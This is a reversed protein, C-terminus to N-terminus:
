RRYKKIMLRRILAAGMPGVTACLVGSAVLRSEYMTLVREYIFFFGFLAVFCCSVSMIIIEKTDQIDYKKIFISMSVSFFFIILILLLVYPFTEIAPVLTLFAMMMVFSLLASGIFALPPGVMAIFYRYDREVSEELSAIANEGPSSTPSSRVTDGGPLGSHVDRDTSTVPEASGDAYKRRPQV